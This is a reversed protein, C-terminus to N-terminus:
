RERSAEEAISCVFYTLTVVDFSAFACAFALSDTFAFVVGAIGFARLAIYWMPRKMSM